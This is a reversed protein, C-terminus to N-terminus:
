GWNQIKDCCTTSSVILVCDIMFVWSRLGLILVPKVKTSSTMTIIIKAHLSSSPELLGNSAVTNSVKPNCIAVM